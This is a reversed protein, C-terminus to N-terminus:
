GFGRSGGGGGGGFGGGGSWGGGGWGGGTHSTKPAPTSTLTSSASSLMTGLSSSMGALSLGLGRNMDGLSPIGGESGALPGPPGAPQSGSGFTGGHHPYGYYGGGYPYVPGWWRPAPTDIGAFKHILSREIGFAIAYPLFQEFKDKVAALDGHKEITQLYRKFALWKAAEEAGQLTKRPLHPGTFVLALATIVLGVGPCVALSSYSGLVALLGFSVIGGLVVGVVGLSRWLTRTTNPNSPFFGAQVVEDYLQQQLTPIYAYFRERLDRMRRENQDSFLAKLLTQEYKRQAQGAAVLHFIYERGSGIGLFGELQQEELRLVGRRALDTITAIIDKLDANEDVLTGVIGAPLDGPPESIYEPLPGVPLDRGRKYWLLYVALPGGILIMLGLGGFLVGVVPGWQRQRDDSAQWAPPQGQVVGHPFQVRVELEQDAAINQAKFVVQGRDTYTPEGVPAGSSGVVLQDKPFTQPLTVTVTAARIPFNHDPVIAKWWLQDGGAYIRLGGIVRYRLIYTHVSSRTPPFYWTIELNGNNQGATFGYERTSNPAYPRETGNILESLQVATIREVRDLPIAAFGFTFTGGTFAIEQIEEVLIDSNPQVTLNVDYRQWVLTKEAAQAIPQGGSLTVIFALLLGLWLCRKLGCVKVSFKLSM